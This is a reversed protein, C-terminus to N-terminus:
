CIQASRAPYCWKLSPSERPASRKMGTWLGDPSTPTTGASVTNHQMANLCHLPHPPHPCLLSLSSSLSPSHATLCMLGDNTSDTTLFEHFFSVCVRSLLALSLDESRDSPVLSCRFHFFPLCASEVRSTVLGHIQGFLPPAGSGSVWGKFESSRVLCCLM